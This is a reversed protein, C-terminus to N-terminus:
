HEQYWDEVAVREKLTIKHQDELIDLAEMPTAGDTNKKRAKSRIKEVEKVIEQIRKDSVSETTVRFSAM